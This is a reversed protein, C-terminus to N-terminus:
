GAVAARTDAPSSTATTPSCRSRCAWRNMAGVFAECVASGSPASSGRRRHRLRSHDDIGTLLKCERGGASCVEVLDLQWLHM